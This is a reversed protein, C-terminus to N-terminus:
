ELIYISTEPYLSLKEIAWDPLIDVARIHGEPNSCEEAYQRRFADPDELWIHGVLEGTSSLYVKM